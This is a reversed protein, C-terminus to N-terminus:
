RAEAVATGSPSMYQSKSKDAPLEASENLTLGGAAAILRVLEGRGAILMYVMCLEDSM